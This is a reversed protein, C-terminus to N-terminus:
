SDLKREFILDAYGSSGYAGVGPSFAQVFRWGDRANQIIHERYEENVKGTFFGGGLKVSVFKYEFKETM